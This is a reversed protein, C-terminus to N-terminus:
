TRVMGSNGHAHISHLFTLAVHDKYARMARWTNRISTSILRCIEAPQRGYVDMDAVAEPTRGIAFYYVTQKSRLTILGGATSASIVPPFL